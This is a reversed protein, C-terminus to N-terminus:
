DAQCSLVGGHMRDSGNPVDTSLLETAIIQPYGPQTRPKYRQVMSAFAVGSMEM